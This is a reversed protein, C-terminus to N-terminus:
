GKLWALHYISSAFDSFIRCGSGEFMKLEEDKPNETLIIVPKGISRAYGVEFLTGPDTGNFVAYMVDCDVIADIDKQVVQEASGIGVEHYPSFTEMGFSEIFYKAENIMWLESLTFFPGALYVKKDGNREIPILNKAFNDLGESNNMIKHSVYYAAAISASKAAQLPTQGKVNWYFAFAAVYSDGSGIPFVSETKYPRVWGQENQSYVYAGRDGCKVVVVIAKELDFLWKSMEEVTDFSVGKGSCFHELENLNAVYVLREATSGTESFLLPKYTNQPDYIITECDVKAIAEIMGFLIVTELKSASPTYAPLDSIDPQPSIKPESLPHFYDFLFTESSSSINLECNSSFVFLEDLKNRDPDSLQTHLIIKLNSDLQSLSM